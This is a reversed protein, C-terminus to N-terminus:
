KELFALASKGYIPSAEVPVGAENYDEAMKLAHFMKQGPTDTAHFYKTILNINVSIANLEKTMTILEEVPM